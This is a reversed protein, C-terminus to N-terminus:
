RAPRDDDGNTVAIRRRRWVPLAAWLALLILATWVPPLYRWDNGFIRDGVLLSVATLAVATAAMGALLLRSGIAVIWAAQGHHLLSRHIVSPTLLLGTALMAALLAVVYADRQVGHLTANFPIALLFGIIVQVGVAAVRTEQLLESIQRTRRESPTEGTRPDRDAHEDPRGAVM